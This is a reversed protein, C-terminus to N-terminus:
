SVALSDIRGHDTSDWAKSTITMMGGGFEKGTSALISKSYQAYYGNFTILM